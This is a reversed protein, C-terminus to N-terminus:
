IKLNLIRDGLGLSRESFGGHASAKVGGHQRSNQAEFNQKNGSATQQDDAGRIEESRTKEIAGQCRGSVGSKTGSPKL